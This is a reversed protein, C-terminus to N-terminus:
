KQNTALQKQNEQLQAIAEALEDAELVDSKMRGDPLVVQSRHATYAAVIGQFLEVGAPYSLADILDDSRLVVYSRGTDRLFQKLKEKSILVNSM